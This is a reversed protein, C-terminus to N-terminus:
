QGGEIVEISFQGTVTLRLVFTRPVANDGYPVSVQNSLASERVSDYWASARAYIHGAASSPNYTVTTRTAGPEVDVTRLTGACTKDDQIEQDCLYIRYNPSVTIPTGDTHETPADWNLGFSAETQGYAYDALVLVSLLLSLVLNFVTRFNM